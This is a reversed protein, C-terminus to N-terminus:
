DSVPPAASRPPQVIDHEDAEQTAANAKHQDDPAGRLQSILILADALARLAAGLRSNTAVHVLEITKQNADATRTLSDLKSHTEDGSQKSRLNMRAIQYPVIAIISTTVIQGLLTMLQISLSETM